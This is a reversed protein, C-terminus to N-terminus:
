KTTNKYTDTILQNIDELCEITQDVVSSCGEYFMDSKKDNYELSKKIWDQIKLNIANSLELGKIKEKRAVIYDVEQPTTTFTHDQAITRTVNTEM